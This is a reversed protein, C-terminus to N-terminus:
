RASPARQVVGKGVMELVFSTDWGLFFSNRTPSEDPSLGSCGSPNFHRIAELYAGTSSLNQDEIGNFMRSTHPKPYFKCTSFSLQNLFEIEHKSSNRFSAQVVLAATAFVQYHYAMKGRALESSLLGNHDIDNRAQSVVWESFDSLKEVKLYSGITAAALGGWYCHNNRCGSSRYHNEIETARMVLWRNFSEDFTSTKIGSNEISLLSIAIASLMWSKYLVNYEGRGELYNMSSISALHLALCPSIDSKYRGSSHAISIDVIAKAPKSVRDRIVKQQEVRKPDLTSFTPDILRRFYRTEIGMDHDAVIWVEPCSYQTQAFSFSSFPASFLFSILVRFSMSLFPKM